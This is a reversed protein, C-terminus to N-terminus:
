PKRAILHCVMRCTGNAFYFVVMLSMLSVPLTPPDPRNSQDGLFMQEARTCIGRMYLAVDGLADDLKATQLTHTGDKRPIASSQSLTASPDVRRRKREGGVYTNRVRPRLGKRRQQSDESQTATEFITETVSDFESDPTQSCPTLLGNTM